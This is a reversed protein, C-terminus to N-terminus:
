NCAAKIGLFYKQYVNRDFDPDVWFGYHLRFHLMLSFNLHYWPSSFGRGETKYRLAQVLLTL